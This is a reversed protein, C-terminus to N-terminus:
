HQKAPKVLSQVFRHADPLDMEQTHQWVFMANQLFDALATAPTGTAADAPTPHCLTKISLDGNAQDDISIIVHAM